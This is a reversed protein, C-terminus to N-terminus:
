VNLQSCHTGGNWFINLVLIESNFGVGIMFWTLEYCRWFASSVCFLTYILSEFHLILIQSYLEPKTYIKKIKKCFTEM